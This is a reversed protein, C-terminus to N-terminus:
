AYFRPPQWPAFAYDFAHVNPEYMSPTSFNPLPHYNAWSPTNPLLTTGIFCGPCFCDSCGQESESPTDAQKPSDNTIDISTSINSHCHQATETKSTSQCCLWEAGARLSQGFLLIALLIPILKM